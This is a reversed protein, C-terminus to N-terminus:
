KAPGAYTTWPYPSLPFLNSVPAFPAAPLGQPIGLLPSVGIGGPGKTIPSLTPLYKKSDQGQTWPLPSTMQPVVGLANGQMPPLYQSVLSPQLSPGMMPNFSGFNFGPGGFAGAPPGGAFGYQAFPYSGLSSPGGPAANAMPNFMNGWGANAPLVTAGLQAAGLANLAPVPAGWMGTIDSPLIPPPPAPPPPPPAPPPLKKGQGDFLSYKETDIKFVMADPGPDRTGSGSGAHAQAASTSARTLVPFRKHNGSHAAVSPHTAALHGNRTVHPPKHHTRADASCAFHILVSFALVVVASSGCVM